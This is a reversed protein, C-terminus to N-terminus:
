EDILKVLAESVKDLAVKLKEYAIAYSIRVYGEGCKGFISGPLIMVRAEKLLHASIKESSMKFAKMSPFIYFAGKPKIASVGNMEILRKYVFDRRRAYEERMSKVSDQPGTLAEIAAKQIFSTPCTADYMQHKLMKSITEEKAVAYGIRWGTMAYTKSFGNITVVRDKLGDLSAVSIHEGEYILKEYIEDSIITLDHEVAFDAIEEIEDKTLVSGTPNNPSNIIIAKTKKSLSKELDEISAKFENKESTGVEVPIGGAISIAPAYASWAPTPILVREGRKLLSSFALHLAQMGGLTVMIETEPNAEIRNEEKLKKAIAERLEFLGANSTYHTFGEDLAKKAADKINKPTDFDPEGIGLNIVDPMKSSIEFLLKRIDPGSPESLKKSLGM